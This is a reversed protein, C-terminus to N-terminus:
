FIHASEELDRLFHTCVQFIVELLTCLNGRASGLTCTCETCALARGTGGIYSMSQRNSAEAAESVTQQALGQRPSECVIMHIIPVYRYKETRRKYGRGCSLLV